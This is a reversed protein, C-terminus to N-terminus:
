ENGGELVELNKAVLSNPKVTPSKGSTSKDHAGKLEITETKQPLHEILMRITEHFYNVSTQVSQIDGRVRTLKDTLKGNSEDIRSELDRLMKEIEAIKKETQSTVSSTIKDVFAEEEERSRIKNLERYLIYTLLFVLLISILDTVINSVLGRMTTSLSPTGSVWFYVIILIAIFFISGIYAVRDIARWRESFSDQTNRDKENM